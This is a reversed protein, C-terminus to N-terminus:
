AIEDPLVTDTSVEDPLLEANAPLSQVRIPRGDPQLDPSQVCWLEGRSNRYYTEDNTGYFGTQENM